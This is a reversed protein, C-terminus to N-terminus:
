CKCTKRNEKKSGKAVKADDNSEEIDGVTSKLVNKMATPKLPDVFFRASGTALQESRNVPEGTGSRETGQTFDCALDSKAGHAMRHTELWKEIFAKGKDRISDMLQKHQDRDEMVVFPYRVSLGTEHHVGRRGPLMFHYIAKRRSVYVGLIHLGSDCLKVRLTGTLTGREDDREILYFDVIEINM